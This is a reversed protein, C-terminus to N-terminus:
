FGFLDHAFYTKALTNIFILFLIVPIFTSLSLNVYKELKSGIYDADGVALEASLNHKKWRYACFVCVTLGVFPLITEYFVDVIVGFFSKSNGGYQTFETLFGVMGQSATALLVFFTMGLAMTIIAKNRSYNKEDVMYAIPIEIISVLSTLAALFVLLFFIGAVMSAGVYGVVGQMSLFIQPLFNFILSVSSESLESADIQPNFAFIAPLILLGAFFAISTDAVAVLCTSNVIKDRAGFYSGYTILIGMGLSLSFFAHNLAANLVGSNIKSFDPVLYYKVGAFANDQFLVFVVLSILMLVLAPMLIRAMKEIGDKVGGALIYFVIGLLVVLYAFLGNSNIFSGFTEQQALVDLNGAFIQVLYGVIWVTIVSYFVAIMFPTLVALGGVLRWLSNGESLTSFAGVPNRRTKRGMAVEALMVPFCILAIFVIYILV